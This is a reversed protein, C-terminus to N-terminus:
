DGKTEFTKIPEDAALIDELEEETIEGIVYRHLLEQEKARDKRRSPKPKQDGNKVSLDEGNKGEM